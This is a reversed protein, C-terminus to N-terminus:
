RWNGSLKPRIISDFVTDNMTYFLDFFERAYKEMESGTFGETRFTGNLWLLGLGWRTDPQDWSYFDQPFGICKGNKVATLGSYRPDTTIAAVTKDINNKYSVVIIYDPNWVAVQEQNVRAWGSGPNSEKWVPKGGAMEVLRTQIWSDPPVELTDATAQVVLVTPKKTNTVSLNKINETIKKYYLTLQEARKEQGFAKGLSTIDSYFDEPTELNLYLTRIGLIELNKGLSSKMTSKLIVLDPKLAAYTEAGAQRDLSPKATFGPSITELFSGLGQDTGAVAIVNNRAEPFAYVLDAVMVVAKGGLIIRSPMIAQSFGFTATFLFVACAATKKLSTKTKM